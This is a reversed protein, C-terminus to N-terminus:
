TIYQLIHYQCALVLADDAPNDTGHGYYLGAESMRSVAWRVMDEVARLEDVAENALQSFDM